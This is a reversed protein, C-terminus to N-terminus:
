RRLRKGLNAWLSHGSTVILMLGTLSMESGSSGTWREEVSLVRKVGGTGVNGRMETIIKKTRNELFFM